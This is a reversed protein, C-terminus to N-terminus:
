SKGRVRGRVGFLHFGSGLPFGLCGDGYVLGRGSEM